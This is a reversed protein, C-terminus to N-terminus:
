EPTCNRDRTAAGKQGRAMSMITEAARELKRYFTVKTEREAEWYFDIEREIMETYSGAFDPPTSTTNDKARKWISFTSGEGSGIKSTAIKKGTDVFGKDQFFGKYCAFKAMKATIVYRLRSSSQEVLDAIHVMLEPPFAEDFLYLITVSPHIRTLDLINGLVTFVNARFHTEQSFKALISTAANASQFVRNPAYEVGIAKCGFLQSMTWLVTGVGSGLDMIVESTLDTSQDRFWDVLEKVGSFRPEAYTSYGDHCLSTKEKLMAYVQDAIAEVPGERGKRLKNEAGVAKRNLARADRIRAQMAKAEERLHRSEEAALARVKLLGPPPDYTPQSVIKDIDEACLKEFFRSAFADCVENEGAQIWYGHPAVAQDDPVLIQLILRKEEMSIRLSAEWKKVPEAESDDTHLVFAEQSEEEKADTGAMMSSDRFLVPTETADCVSNSSSHNSSVWPSPNDASIDEGAGGDQSDADVRANATSGLLRAVSINKGDANSRERNRREDVLQALTHHLEPNDPEKYQQRIRVKVKYLLSPPFVGRPIEMGAVKFLDIM